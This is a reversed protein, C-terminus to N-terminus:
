KKVYTVGDVTITTVPHKGTMTTTTTSSPCRFVMYRVGQDSVLKTVSCDVLENPLSFANSEDRSSPTCGVLVISLAFIFKM